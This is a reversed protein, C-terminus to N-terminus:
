CIMESASNDWKPSLISFVSYFPPPPCLNKTHYKNWQQGLLEDEMARKKKEKEEHM